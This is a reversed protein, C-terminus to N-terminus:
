KRYLLIKRCMKVELTNNVWSKISNLETSAHMWDRCIHHTYTVHECSSYFDKGVEEMLHARSKFSIKGMGEGGGGGGM